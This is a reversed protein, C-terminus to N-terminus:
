DGTQIKASPLATAAIASAATSTSRDCLALEVAADDDRGFGDCEGCGRM